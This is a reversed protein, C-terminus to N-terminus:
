SGGLWVSERRSLTSHACTQSGRFARQFLSAFVLGGALQWRRGPDYAKKAQRPIETEGIVMSIPAASLRFCIGFV